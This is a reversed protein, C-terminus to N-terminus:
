VHQELDSDVILMNSAHRLRKGENILQYQKQKKDDICPKEVQM